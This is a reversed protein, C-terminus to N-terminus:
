ESLRELLQVVNISGGANHTILCTIFVSRFTFFLM